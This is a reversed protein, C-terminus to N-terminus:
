QMGGLEHQLPFSLNQWLYEDREAILGAPAASKQNAVGVLEDDVFMRYDRPAINRTLQNRLYHSYLDRFCYAFGQDAGGTTDAHVDITPQTFLRDNAWPYGTETRFPIRRAEGSNYDDPRTELYGTGSQRKVGRADDFTPMGITDTTWLGRRRAEAKIELTHMLITAGEEWGFLWYRPREAPWRARLRERFPEPIPVRLFSYCKMRVGNRADSAPLIENQRFYSRM